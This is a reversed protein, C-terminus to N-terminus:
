CRIPLTMSSPFCAREGKYTVTYSFVEVDRVEGDALRHRLAFYNREEEAAAAMEAMTEELSLTNIQTIDM